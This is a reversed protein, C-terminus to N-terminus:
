FVEEGEDDPEFGEGEPEAKASSVSQAAYFARAKALDQETAEALVWPASQGPKAEGQGLRGVVVEGISRKLQGILVRPFILTDLFEDHTNAGTLVYVDARMADSGAEGPKTYTTKIGTELVLPEIVLLKGKLPDYDIGGASPKASGIKKM